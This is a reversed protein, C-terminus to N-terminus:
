CRKSLFINIMQSFIFKPVSVSGQKARKDHLQVSVGVSSVPSFNWFGIASM